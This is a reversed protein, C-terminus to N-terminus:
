VVTEPVDPQSSDVAIKWATGEKRWVVIYRGTLHQVAGASAVDFAYTGLEYATNGDVHTQSSTLSGNSFSMTELADAISTEIQGRGRVLQGRAPMSVGDAAFVSAYASADGAELAAIYTRNGADIAAQVEAPSSPPVHRAAAAFRRFLLAVGTFVFALAFVWSAVAIVDRSSRACREFTM